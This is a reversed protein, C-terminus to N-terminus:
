YDGHNHYGNGRGPENEPIGDVVIIVIGPADAVIPQNYAGYDTNARGSGTHTRGGEGAVGIDIAFAQDSTAAYHTRIVVWNGNVPLRYGLGQPLPQPGPQPGPGQPGPGPGPQPPYHPPPTEDPCGVLFASAAVLALFRM